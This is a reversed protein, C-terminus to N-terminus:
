SLLSMSPLSSFPTNYLTVCTNDLAVFINNMKDTAFHSGEFFCDCPRSFLAILHGDSPTTPRRTWLIDHICIHENKGKAAGWGRIQYSPEFMMLIKYHNVHSKERKRMMWKELFIETNKLFLIEHIEM